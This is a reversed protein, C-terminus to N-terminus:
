WSQAFTLVYVGAQMAIQVLVNAVMAFIISATMLQPPPPVKHLVPYAENRGMLLIVVTSLIIDIYLFQLDGIYGSNWLLIMATTFQIMSYLAM